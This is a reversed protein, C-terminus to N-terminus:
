DKGTYRIRKIAGTSYTIVNVTFKSSSLWDDLPLSGGSWKGKGFVYSDIPDTGGNKYVNVYSVSNKGSHIDVLIRNGSVKNSIRINRDPQTLLSGILEERTIEAENSVVSASQDFVTDESGKKALSYYKTTSNYLLGFVSLGSLIIIPGIMRYFFVILNQM